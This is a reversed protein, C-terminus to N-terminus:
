AVTHRRRAINEAEPAYGPGHDRHHACGCPEHVAGYICASCTGNRGALRIAARTAAREGARLEEDHRARRRAEADLRDARLDYATRM